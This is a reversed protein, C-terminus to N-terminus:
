DLPERKYNNNRFFPRAGKSRDRYEQTKKYKELERMAAVQAEARTKFTVQYVNTGCHRVRARYPSGGNSKDFYVHASAEGKTVSYGIGAVLNILIILISILKINSKMIIALKFKFVLFCM